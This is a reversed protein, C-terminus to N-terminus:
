NGGHFDIADIVVGLGDTTPQQYHTVFVDVDRHGSRRMADKLPVKAIGCLTVYRKRFYKASLNFGLVRQSVKKIYVEQNTSSIQRGSKNCFLYPSNLLNSRNFANIIVAKLATDKVPHLDVQDKRRNKATSPRINIRLPQNIGGWDVGDKLIQAAEMPRRGTDRLFSFFDHYNPSDKKMCDFMKRLETNSVQRYSDDENPRLNSFGKIEEHIDKPLFGLKKLKGLIIRITVAESSPNEKAGYDNVYWTLYTNLFATDLDLLNKIAFGKAQPFEKFLRWFHKRYEGITKPTNGNARCNDEMRQCIDELSAQQTIQSFSNGKTKQAEIIRSNRANKVEKISDSHITEWKRTGGAYWSIQFVGDSIRHIGTSVQRKKM